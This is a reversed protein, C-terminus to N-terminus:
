QGLGEEYLLNQSGLVWSRLRNPVGASGASTLDFRVNSRRYITIRTLPDGRPPEQAPAPLRLRNWKWWVKIEM